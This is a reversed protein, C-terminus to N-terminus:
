PLRSCVLSIPGSDDRYIAVIIEPGGKVPKKLLKKRLIEPDITVGRTMVTLAGASYKSILKALEKENFEVKM